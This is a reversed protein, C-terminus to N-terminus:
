VEFFDEDVEVVSVTRKVQVGVGFRIMLQALRAGDILVVRVNLNEAYGVAGSSFQGTTIFVGQHAQEGHLAGVFAQIDPRGVVRDLAYRKAQVYIRSLGLADQDIVGDIGGDNSLQTRTARGKTGGYGMGILLDLVAQEFFAPDNAYLRDLLDAAVNAHLREVGAEILETPTLEQQKDVDGGDGAVTSLKHSTAPPVIGHAEAFQSLLKGNLGEPHAALLERGLDNIAYHARKPRDLCDARHLYTIAWSIRSVYLAQGSNIYELRDKDTIGTQRAVQEILDRRVAAMGGKPVELVPTLYGDWTRIAM